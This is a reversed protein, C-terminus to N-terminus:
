CSSSLRLGVTNGFQNAPFSFDFENRYRRGRRGNADDMRPGRHRPTGWLRIDDSDYGSISWWWYDGSHTSYTYSISSLHGTGDSRIVVSVTDSGCDGARFTEDWEFRKEQVSQVSVTFADIQLHPALSLLTVVALRALM